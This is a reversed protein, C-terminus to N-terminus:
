VLSPEDDVVQRRREDRRHNLQRSPSLPRHGPQGDDDGYPRPGKEIGQLAREGLHNVPVQVGPDDKELCVVLSQDPPKFIYAPGVRQLAVATDDVPDGPLSLQQSVEASLSVDDDVRRHQVHVLEPALDISHEALLVLATKPRSHDGEAVLVAQRDVGVEHDVAPEQRVRVPYRLQARAGPKVWRDACIHQLLGAGLVEELTVRLHQLDQGLAVTAFALSIDRDRHAAGAALVAANDYRLLEGSPQGLVPPLRLHDVAVHPAPLVRLLGGGRLLRLSGSVKSTSTAATGPPRPRCDWTPM